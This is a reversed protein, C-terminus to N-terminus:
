MSSSRASSSSVEEALSRELQQLRKEADVLRHNQEINFQSQHQFMESSQNTLLAKYGEFSCRVETRLCELQEALEEASPQPVHQQIYADENWEQDAWDRLADEGKVWIRTRAFGIVWDVWRNRDSSEVGPTVTFYPVRPPDAEPVPPDRVAEFNSSSSMRPEDVFVAGQIMSQSSRPAAEVDSGRIESSSPVRIRSANGSSTSSGVNSVKSPVRSSPNFM